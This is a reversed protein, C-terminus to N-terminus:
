KKGGQNSCCELKYEVIKTPFPPCFFLLSHHPLTENSTKPQEERKTFKYLLLNRAGLQQM